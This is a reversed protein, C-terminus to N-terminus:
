RCWWCNYEEVTTEIGGKRSERKGKKRENM